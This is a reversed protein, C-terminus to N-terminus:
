GSTRTCTEHVEGKTYKVERRMSFGKTNQVQELSTTHIYIIGTSVTRFTSIGKGKDSGAAFYELVNNRLGPVRDLPKKNVVNRRPCNRAM